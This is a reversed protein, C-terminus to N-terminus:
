AAKSGHAKNDVEDGDTERSFYAREERGNRHAPPRTGGDGGLDPGHHHGFFDVRELHHGEVRDFEDHRRLQKGRRMVMGQRVTTQLTQPMKAPQIKMNKLM